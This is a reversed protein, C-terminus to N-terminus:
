HCPIPANRGDIWRATCTQKWFTKIPEPQATKGDQCLQAPSYGWKNLASSWVAAAAASYAVLYDILAQNTTRHCALYHLATNGHIDTESIAQDPDEVHTLLYQVLIRQDDFYNAPAPEPANQSFIILHNTFDPFDRFEHSSEYISEAFVNIHSQNAPLCAVHLLTHGIATKGASALSFGDDVVRKVAAISLQAVLVHLFHIRYIPTLVNRDLRNDAMLLDYAEWNPPNCLLFAAMLPTFCQQIIALPMANPSFELELLRKVMQTRRYRIACILPNSVSLSSLTAPTPVQQPPDMWFSVEPHSEWVLDFIDMSEGKCAMELATMGNGSGANYVDPNVCDAGAWFAPRQDHRMELEKDTVPTDQTYEAEAVAEERTPFSLPDLPPFRIFQAAFESMERVPYPTPDIGFGLVTKVNLPHQCKIAETLASEWFMDTLGSRYKAARYAGSPHALLARLVAPNPDRAARIEPGGDGEGFDLDEPTLAYDDLNNTSAM